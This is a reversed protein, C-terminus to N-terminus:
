YKENLKLKLFNILKDEDMIKLDIELFDIDRQYKKPIKVYDKETTIIKANLKKAKELIKNIEVESYNYHDPYIIEDVILFNEKLLINKFSNPNGIGSFFLYKNSLDFKNLSLAAYGTIFIKILPNLNKITEIIKDLVNNNNKLFVADYKKLSGLKERLPGSPILQGNGIWCEADFCVFKLDYNISKDQLGDDFIIIEKSKTLSQEVIKKRNKATILNTKNDLIIQEDKQSLYFKKATVVDYNLIKLINYLKLTTPTKGTGGIYINGICITKIKKSRFGLSHNLILNNLRVIFTLPLLLYSFFSPKDLDWFKPKKFNM